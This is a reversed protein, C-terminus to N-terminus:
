RKWHFEYEKANCFLKMDQLCQLTNCTGQIHEAKTKHHNLVDDLYNELNKYLLLMFVKDVYQQFCSLANEFGFTM